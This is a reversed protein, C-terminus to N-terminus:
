LSKPCLLSFCYCISFHCSSAELVWYRQIVSSTHNPPIPLYFAAWHFRCIQPTQFCWCIFFAFILDSFAAPTQLCIDLFMCFSTLFPIVLVQSCLNPPKIYAHRTTACQERVLLSFSSSSQLDPSLCWARSIFTQSRIHVTLIDFALLATNAM